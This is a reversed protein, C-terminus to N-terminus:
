KLIRKKSEVEILHSLQYADWILTKYDGIEEPELASKAEKLYDVVKQFSEKMWFTSNDSKFSKAHENIIKITKDIAAIKDSGESSDISKDLDCVVGRVKESIEVILSNM